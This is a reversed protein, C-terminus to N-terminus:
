GGWNRPLVRALGRGVKRLPRAAALRRLPRAAALRRVPGGYGANCGGPGCQAQVSCPICLALAVLLLLVTAAKM